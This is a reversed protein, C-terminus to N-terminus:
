MLLAHNLLSIVRYTKGPPETTFSHEVSYREPHVELPELVQEDPCYQFPVEHTELPPYLVSGDVLQM